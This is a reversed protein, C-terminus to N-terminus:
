WELLHKSIKNKQYFAYVLADAYDPSEVGRKKMELKSEILEKKNRYLRKPKQLDEILRPHNPLSILDEVKPPSNNLNELYFYTNQIRRRLNGWAEARLNYFFENCHVNLSQIWVNKSASGSGLFEIFRFSLNHDLLNFSRAFDSGVGIADFCLYDLLGLMKTEIYEKIDIALHGDPNYSFERIDEVISGRRYVGITQNSGSSAIDLGLQFVPQFEQSMEPIKTHSEVCAEIWKLDIYSDEKTAEFDCDLEQRAVDKGLLEDQYSRWAQDRRPDAEWRYYFVRTVSNQVQHYFLDDHGNPTSVFIVCETNRSIAKLLSLGREIHGAEDVVAMSSRGSRGINDGSAGKIESFTYPNKLLMSTRVDKISFPKMWEPLGEFMLILKEFLCDSSGTKDVNDKKNSAITVSFNPVFLFKHLAYALTIYSAGTDRAKPIAGWKKDKYCQEIFQIAEEQRDYLVFPVLSFQNERPDFTNLFHNIFFICDTRCKELLIQQAQPNNLAKKQILYRNTLVRKLKQRHKKAISTELSYLVPQVM